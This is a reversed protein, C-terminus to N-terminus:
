VFSKGSKGKMLNELLKTTFFSTFAPLLLLSSLFFSQDTTEIAAIAATLPLGLISALFSAIGALMFIKVDAFAALNAFSSGVGAGIAISPAVLGGACGSAFSIITNLIRGLIEKQSFVESPVGNLADNVTKIGGSFSYPGCYFSITAVALGGFIPVLHWKWSKIASLKEFSILALKNFFFALIGCIIALFILAFVQWNFIFEIASTAFLPSSERLILAVVFAAFFLGFFLPYNKANFLKKQEKALKELLYFVAAIPALFAVAFGVSCGIYLWNELSIKGFTKRFKEAAVIFISGAMHVSPAERGLAGGAFTSIISSAATVFVVPLSLLHSIKEYSNPSTKLSTLASKIRLLSSGAASPALSRCMYSSVWFLAPTLLFIVRADTELRGKALLGADYFVVCYLHIFITAIVTICLLYFLEYLRIKM